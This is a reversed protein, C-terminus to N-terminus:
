HSEAPAEGHQQDKKESGMNTPDEMNHGSNTEKKLNLNHPQDMSIIYDRGDWYFAFVGVFFIVVAFSAAVATLLMKQMDSQTAVKYRVLEIYNLITEMASCKLLQM